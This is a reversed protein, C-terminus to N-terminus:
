IFHGVLNPDSSIGPHGAQPEGETACGSWKLKQRVVKFFSLEPLVALPLTREARFIKVISGFELPV